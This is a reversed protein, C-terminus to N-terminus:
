ILPKGKRQQPLSLTLDELMENMRQQAELEEQGGLENSEEVIVNPVIVIHDTRSSSGLLNPYQRSLLKLYRGKMLSLVM